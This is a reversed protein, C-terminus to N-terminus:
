VGSYALAITAALYAILLVGIATFVPSPRQEKSKMDIFPVALWLVSALGVLCNVLFEGSLGAIRSPAFKLTEYLPLFYWEPKIGVPASALPDAKEGISWPLLTALAVLAIFGLCWAIADRYMFNPLFPLPRRKSTAGLPVSSGYYQNLLLHLSVVVLAILPLIIVHIAYMRSLTEGGVEDGGKLLQVSWAGVIPMSKPIETGIVTAFYAMSDWPLLYGTFGFGLVLFMLLVGSIWMLERPKRYSKMLFVSFMHILLSGVMLNASWSHLSRILWGFEVDMIIYRVSEYAQDPTPKYYLALLIGTILQVVFFFLTLGGLFYWFSHKHQPVLKQELFTRLDVLPLRENAWSLVQSSFLGHSGM